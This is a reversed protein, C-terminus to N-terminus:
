SKKVVGLDTEETRLLGQAQDFRVRGVDEGEKVIVPKVLSNRWDKWSLFQHGNVKSESGAGKKAGWM